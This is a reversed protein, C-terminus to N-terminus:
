SVICCNSGAKGGSDVGVPAQAKSVVADGIEAPAPTPMLPKAVQEVHFYVAAWDVTGPKKADESLMKISGGSLNSLDFGLIAMDKIIDDSSRFVADTQKMHAKRLAPTGFQAAEKVFYDVMAMQVLEWTRIRNQVKDAAMPAEVKGEQLFALTLDPGPVWKMESEEMGKEWFIKLVDDLMKEVESEIVDPMYKPLTDTSMCEKMVGEFPEVPWAAAFTAINGYKETDSRVEDFYPDEMLDGPSPRITPSWVLSRKVFTMDEEPIQPFREELPIHEPPCSRMRELYEHMAPYREVMPFDTASPAGIYKMIEEMQPCDPNAKDMGGIPSLRSCNANFYPVRKGEYSMQAMEGLMCAASWMDSQEDYTPDVLLLEPARYWRTAVHASLRRYKKKVYTLNADEETDGTAIATEVAANIDAVREESLRMRAFGFDCLKLAGDHGVLVNEPKLDRHILGLAQFYKLGCLLQYMFYKIQDRNFIVTDKALLMRLDYGAVNEMVLYVHQFDDRNENPPLIEVLKVVNPHNAQVMTAVERVTRLSYVLGGLGADPSRFCSRIQKVIVDQQTICHKAQGVIGYRGSGIYKTMRFRSSLLQDWDKKQWSLEDFGPDGPRKKYKLTNATVAAM